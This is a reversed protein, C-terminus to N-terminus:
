PARPPALERIAAQGSGDDRRRSRAEPLSTDHGARAPEDGRRSAQADRTGRSPRGGNPRVRDRAERAACDPPIPIPRCLTTETETGGVIYDWDNQNLNARAKAVIEHLAQLDTPAAALRAAAAQEPNDDKIPKDAPSYNMVTGNM